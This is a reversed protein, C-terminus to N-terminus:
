YNLFKLKQREEMRRIIIFIVSYLVALWVWSIGFQLTAAPFGSFWDIIKTLYTLLLWSPFSLVWGLFISLMGSLGFIFILITLPALIPVILINAATSILSVYGFNYILIPLTFVQASVTATFTTRLPFFGPNPIKKFVDSFIPQLYIIGMMALFSLQFGIDLKLLLPNSALMLTSAFVIARSAASLRGFNQAAMFLGGMIGARVASAPAGIMLIYILILVISFYFAQNRWFGFALFFNLILASIITINMGSVAAIHRTGTLNLKQKWEESISGEDGFILAELFGEQPPSMFNRATEKFKNKFSFLAAMLPSGPSRGLSEIKPWEMVYRIGDKALYNRYNFGSIDESPMKLNGAIKLNDGYEYEPYRATTVLIKGAGTLRSGDVGEMRGTELTLKATKGKIDPEKIVSGTLIVTMGKDSLKKSGGDSIEFEAAQHRWIGVASFLVCFGIATIKKRLEVEKRRGFPWFVSILLVGFVSFILASPQNIKLFSDLFVGSIFSLCLYLVIKSATM